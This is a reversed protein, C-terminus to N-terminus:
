PKMYIYGERGELRGVEAIGSPVLKAGPIVRDTPINYAALSNRCVRFDVGKAALRQVEPGYPTGDGKEAGKLLFDVGRNYAVVVLKTDPAAKLYNAINRLATSTDLDNSIQFVVKEGQPSFAGHLRSDVRLVGSWLGLLLILSPLVLVLGWALKGPRWPAAQDAPRITKALTRRLDLPARHYPAMRSLSQHLASHADRRSRCRACTELHAELAKAALLELEGDIYADLLEDAQHCNM